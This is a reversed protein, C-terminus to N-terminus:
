LNPGAWVEGRSALDKFTEFAQCGVESDSPIEIPRLAARNAVVDMVHCAIRHMTRSDVAPALIPTGNSGCHFTKM